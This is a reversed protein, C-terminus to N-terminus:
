QEGRNRHADQERWQGRAVESADPANRLLVGLRAMALDAARDVDWGSPPDLLLGDMDTRFAPDDLKALLNQRLQPYTFVADGMYHTLAAVVLQDDSGVADLVFWLDFLDRGKSRQYLARLKTGMLEELVFTTVAAEGSWWGSGVRHDISTPTVLPETEEINIEVKLRMPAPGVSSAMEMVTHVM